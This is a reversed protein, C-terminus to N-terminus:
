HLRLGYENFHKNNIVNNYLHKDMSVYILILM